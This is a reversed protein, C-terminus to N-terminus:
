VFLLDQDSSIIQFCISRERPNVESSFNESIVPFSVEMRLLRFQKKVRLRSDCETQQSPVRCYSHYWIPSYSGMNRKSIPSTKLEPDGGDKVSIDFSGRQGGSSSHNQAELNELVNTYGAKHSFTRLCKHPKKNESCVVDGGTSIGNGGDRQEPM